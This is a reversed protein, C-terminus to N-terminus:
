CFKKARIIDKFRQDMQTTDGQLRPDDDPIEKALKEMSAYYDGNSLHSCSPECIRKLNGVNNLNVQEIANEIM